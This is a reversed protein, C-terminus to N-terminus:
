SLASATVLEVFSLTERAVREWNYHLEVARRGAVAMAHRRAPDGLLARFAAAVADVSTPDVLLGTDGDRVAAAAGGADGAVPPTGSASAEVFSLGFGEVYRGNWRSAGAYVTATAYAEAVEEDSLEGTFIVRDSVALEASLARLAAEHPGRGVILYRLLPMEPGLRALARLSVDHGKHPVLNAVTLLLPADGLSFRRRLEGRDNRPHFRVPDTGLEIAAVPPVPDLSMADIAALAAERTWASNAVIGSAGGFIRRAIAREIASATVRERERLVDTGYVYLVYPTGTRRRAWWAALGSPRFDGCHIAAVDRGHCRASLWHAWALQRDLRRDGPFTFPQRQVPFELLADVPAADRAAVTSVEVACLPALHRFLEHLQRPIGGTQPPFNRAVLLHTGRGRASM